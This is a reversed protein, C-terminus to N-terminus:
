TTLFGAPNSIARSLFYANQQYICRYSKYRVIDRMHYKDYVDLSARCMPMYNAHFDTKNFLPTRSIELKETIINLLTSKGSGNGGAFITIESFSIDSLGKVPFVQFPYVSDYCTLGRYRFFFDDEDQKSPLHFQSLYIM